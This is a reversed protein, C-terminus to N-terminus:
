FGTLLKRLFVIHLFFRFFYLFNLFNINHFYIDLVLSVLFEESVSCNYIKIKYRLKDMKEAFPQIAFIKSKTFWIIETTVICCQQKLM